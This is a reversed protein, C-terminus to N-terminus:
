WSVRRLRMFVVSVGMVLAFFIMLLASSYGMNFYEFAQIFSYINLTESAYVPGGKTIVFISDFTKLADISRFLVAVMITPRLLPLTIHWLLQASNAGDIAASEYPDTPLASLGALVILMVLPTFKWSDVVVLCLLAISQDAVWISPPQGILSLLYNLLGSTPDYMMLWVLSVAVPTAMMPLLFLSRFIGRGKFEENFVLAMAIGLITQLGVALTTFVITRVFAGSFRADQTILKVYNDLGVFIPGKPSSAFWSQFSMWMTYVVPFVMMGVIALVAPAPMLYRANREDFLNFSRRRVPARVPVAPVQSM